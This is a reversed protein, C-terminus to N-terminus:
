SLHLLVHAPLPLKGVADREHRDRVVEAEGHAAVRVELNRGFDRLESALRGVQRTEHPVQHVQLNDMRVPIQARESRPCECIQLGLSFAGRISDDFLKDLVRQARRELNEEM